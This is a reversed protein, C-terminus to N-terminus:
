LRKPTSGTHKKIFQVFASSSSFNLKDAIEQVTLDTTRLLMRAEILIAEHIWSLIPRGTARRVATSLYKPTLHLEDAYFRVTRHKRFHTALLRFFRDSLNNADIAPTVHPEFLREYEGAIELILAYFISRIIESQYRSEERTEKNIFRDYNLLDQYKEDSLEIASIYRSYGLLNTDIPSPLSLIYDITVAIMVVDCCMSLDAHNIIHSEPLIVLTNRALTYSKSDISLEGGGGKCLIIIVGGHLVYGGRESNDAFILDRGICFGAQGRRAVLEAVEIDEILVPLNGM